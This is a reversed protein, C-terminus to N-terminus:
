LEARRAIARVGGGVFGEVAGGEHGDPLSRFWDDGHDLAVADAAPQGHREGALQGGGAEVAGVIGFPLLSKRLFPLRSKPAVTSNHQWECKSATTAIRFFLIQVGCKAVSTVLFCSQSRQSREAISSERAVATHKM